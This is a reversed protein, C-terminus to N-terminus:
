IRIDPFAELSIILSMKGDVKTYSLELKEMLIYTNYIIHFFGLFSTMLIQDSLFYLISFPSLHVLNFKPSLSKDEKKCSGRGSSPFIVQIGTHGTVFGKPRCGGSTHSFANDIKESDFRLYHKKEGSEIRPDM